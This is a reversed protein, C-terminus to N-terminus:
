TKASNLVANLRFTRTICIYVFMYIRDAYYRKEHYRRASGLSSSTCVVQWHLRAKICRAVDGSQRLGRLLYEFGFFM